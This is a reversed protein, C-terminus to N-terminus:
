TTCCWIILGHRTVDIHIEWDMEAWGNGYPVDIQIRRRGSILDWFTPSHIKIKSRRFQDSTAFEGPFVGLRSNDVFLGEATAVDKLAVASAFQKALLTPKTVWYMGLGTLSVILFLKRLSLQFWHTPLM